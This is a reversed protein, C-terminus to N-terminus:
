ATILDALAGPARADAVGEEGEAYFRKLAVYSDSIVVITSM